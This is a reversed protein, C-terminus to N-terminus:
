TVRSSRTRRTPTSQAVAAGLLMLYSLAVAPIQLSFDVLSHVGVLASAGVGLCPLIADRRRLFAGQACRGALLFVAALLSLAAPFGLELMNELYDDHALDVVLKLSETRYTPFVWKFTGLGTGLLPTNGIAELTLNYIEHRGELDWNTNAIRGLTNGGSVLLAALGGVILAAAFATRWPGRLSPALFTMLLLALIGIGTAAAGGRSHTLLLATTTIAIGVVLWAARSTLLEVLARLVARRGARLDIKRLITDLLLGLMAVLALGVYTAFSNRNVFTSTLDHPYAWKAFWLVFKNGTGYVVLGWAAYAAGIAAIATALLRARGADGCCRYAIWFAAAYSLLRMIATLSAARDLSISPSVLASGLRSPVEHWLPHQWAAPMWPLCQAIAWAIAAAFLLAPLVLPRLPTREEGKAVVDGLALVVVLGGLLAALLSWAWPRASGFPLPAWAAIALLLWWSVARLTAAVDRSRPAEGPSLSVRRAEPAEVSTTM